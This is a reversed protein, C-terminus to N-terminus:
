HGEQKTVVDITDPAMPHFTAVEATNSPATSRM